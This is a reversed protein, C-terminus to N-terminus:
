QNNKESQVVRFHFLFLPLGVILFSIDRLADRQKQARRQKKAFEQKEAMQAKIEEPNEKPEKLPKGDPAYAPRPFEPYVAYEAEEAATFVWTKLGLNILDASSFVLMLLGVLSVAYFYVQRIKSM